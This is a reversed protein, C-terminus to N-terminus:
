VISLLRVFIWKDRKKLSKQMLHNFIVAPSVYEIKKIGKANDFDPNMYRQIEEDSDEEDEDDGDDSDTTLVEDGEKTYERFTPTKDEVPVVGRISDKFRESDTWVREGNKAWRFRGSTDVVVLYDQREERSLYRVQERELRDRPVREIEVDKGEGYDLWYFFNQKSPSNKWISHYARLNSGYRHKTDVQLCTLLTFSTYSRPYFHFSRPVMELFYQLDMMKAKKEVEAATRTPILPEHHHQTQATQQFTHVRQTQAGSESQEESGTGEVIKDQLNDDGGARLAIQGALKWKRRVEPSLGSQSTRRSAQDAEAEEQEQEQEDEDEHQIIDDRDNGTQEVDGNTEANYQNQMAKHWQAEKVAEIWRTSSSLSWGKLERRARYGRYYRQM